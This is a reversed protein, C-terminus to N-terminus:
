DQTSSDADDTTREEPKRVEIDSYVPATAPYNGSQRQPRRYGVYPNNTNTISQAETDPEKSEQKAKEPFLSPNEWVYRQIVDKLFEEPIEIDVEIGRERFFMEIYQEAREAAVDVALELKQQGKDKIEDFFQGLNGETDVREVFLAAYKVAEAIFLELQDPLIAKVLEPIAQRGKSILMAVAFIAVGAVGVLLLNLLTSLGTDMM